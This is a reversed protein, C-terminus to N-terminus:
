VGGKVTALARVKQSVWGGYELYPFNYSTRRKCEQFVRDARELAAVLPGCKEAVVAVTHAEMVAAINTKLQELSMDGDEWDIQELAEVAGQSAPAPPQQLEALIQAMPMRVGNKLIAISGDAPDMGQTYVPLLEEQRENPSAPPSECEIPKIKSM